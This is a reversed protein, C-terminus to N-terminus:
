VILAVDSSVVDTIYTLGSLTHGNGHITGVFRKIPTWEKGTM